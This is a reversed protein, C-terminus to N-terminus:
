RRPSATSSTCRRAAGAEEVPLVDAFGCGRVVILAGYFPGIGPLRQVAESAAGPGWRSWGTPRSTAPRQRRVSRGCGRSGTPRSGRMGPDDPLEALASPPPLAAVSRGAPDFTEGYAASLRERVGIGQPRARRASVLSWVAAEYPSHFLPPRLGPAAKQLAGIVPDRPRARRLGGRRPRLLAGARGSPGGRRPRRRGPHDPAAVRRGPRVEVGAATELDHDVRFAMRMVGDVDREARHGFGFLALEELSFPGRTPITRQQTAATMWGHHRPPGVGRGAGAPEPAARRGVAAQARWLRVELDARVAAYADDDAVNRLEEPDAELDYLEWEPPYTRDGCGPYGM